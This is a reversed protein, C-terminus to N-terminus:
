AARGASIANLRALAAGDRFGRDYDHRTHWRMAFAGITGGVVYAGIILLAATWSSM